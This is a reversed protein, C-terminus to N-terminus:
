NGAAEARITSFYAVSAAGTQDTDCFLALEVLRTGDPDGWQRRYLQRLDVREDHWRGIEAQGGRATYHPFAQSRWFSKLYKWDGAKLKRNGWIIEMAHAEGDKSVFKLYLRAPHDDGEATLEDIESVVPQEVLWGWALLPQSDLSVDVDRFLMSAAGQTALRIAPRGAQTVWSMEMPRTRWFTRHRWGPPLAKLDLPRSFEMLTHGTGPATVQADVASTLALAFALVSASRM